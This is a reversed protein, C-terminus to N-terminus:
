EDWIKRLMRGRKKEWVTFSLASQAAEEIAARCANIAQMVNKHSSLRYEEGTKFNEVRVQYM